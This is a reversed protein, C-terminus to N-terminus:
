RARERRATWDFEIVFEHCKSSTDTVTWNLIFLNGLNIMVPIHRLEFEDLPALNWQDCQRCVTWVRGLHLDFALRRGVAQYKLVQNKGLFSGCFLCTCYM